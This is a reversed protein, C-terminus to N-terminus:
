IKGKKLFKIFNKAINKESNGKLDFKLEIDFSYDIGFIRLFNRGEDIIFHPYFYKKDETEICILCKGNIYFIKCFNILFDEEKELLDKIEM